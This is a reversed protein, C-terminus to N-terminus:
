RSTIYLSNLCTHPWFYGLFLSHWRTWTRRASLIVSLCSIRFLHVIWYIKFKLDKERSLVSVENTYNWLVILNRSTTFCMKDMVIRSKKSNVLFSPSGGGGMGNWFGDLISAHSERSRVDSQDNNDRNTLVHVVIWSKITFHKQCLHHFRGISNITVM